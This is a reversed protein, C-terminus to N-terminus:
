LAAFRSYERKSCSEYSLKKGFRLKKRFISGLKQALLSRKTGVNSGLLDYPNKIVRGGCGGSFKICKLCWRVLEARVM